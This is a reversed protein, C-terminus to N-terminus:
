IYRNRLDAWLLTAAAVALLILTGGMTPTGAKSFHSKPGDDRITQGVKYEALKRIMAPGVLLAVTLATLAALIARLTLYSFLNFGSIHPKLLLFLELLM